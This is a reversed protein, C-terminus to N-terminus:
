NSFPNIPPLRNKWPKAEELQSALQFLLDDRGFEAAFQTGIPLNDDNWHVPVSMAPQGTINFIPTFPVFEGAREFGLIPDEPTKLEGIELPPEALTPTLWVDYDDFYNQQVERSIRQLLTVSTLYDVSSYDQGMEYLTWTLPEVVEPRPDHGSELAAAEVSAATGAAWVTLFAEQMLNADFDPSFEEVTHGLDECLTATQEAAVRCDSHVDEGTPSELLLGIKLEGPDEQIVEGYPRDVAPARYPDGVATGRTADLLAASDRVTRTIAHEIVLGNMLDGFDPGLSIRARTPKMGFVGCCAAPIRLSGGGDNGHALPLIGSAVAAASGGSSGGTTRTPDWPNRAPGFLEPETTPTIGFEPTNTKGLILLGSEKYREVLYNDHDPVYDEMLRSGMTLPAGEYAALLDKLLFPVGTFPGEPIPESAKARAHDFLETVVANLESNVSEIRDITREVLDIAEIEGSRVQEALELGDLIEM